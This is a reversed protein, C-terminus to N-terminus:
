LLGLPGTSRANDLDPNVIRLREQQLVETNTAFQYLSKMDDYQAKTLIEDAMEAVDEVFDQFSHGHIRIMGLDKFGAKQLIEASARDKCKLQVAEAFLDM